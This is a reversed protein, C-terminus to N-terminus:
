ASVIQGAVDKVPVKSLGQTAPGKTVAGDTASFTSGHCPCTITNNEVSNVLCGQHPCVASFGNYQGATPQTVVVKQTEFVKGGNVPIDSAPGLVGAQAAVSSAASQAASALSSAASQAQSAASQVASQAQSAASQAAGVASSVTSAANGGCAALAGAAGAIGVAGLVTRRTVGSGSPSQQTVAEDAGALRDHTPATM